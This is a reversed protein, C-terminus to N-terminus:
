EIGLHKLIDEIPADPTPKDEFTKPDMYYEGYDKHYAENIRKWSNKYQDKFKRLNRTLQDGSQKQKLSAFASTLLELERESVQGLAGGTKSSDRMEQLRGFGAEAEITALTGALDGAPTGGIWSTLQAGLGTTTLGEAQELATDVTNNLNQFKAKESGLATQRQRETTILEGQKEGIAQQVQKQRELEPVYGMKAAGTGTEGAFQFAQRMSPDAYAPMLPSGTEPNEVMKPRGNEMVFYGETSGTPRAPQGRSWNQELMAEAARQGQPYPSGAGTVAAGAPDPERWPVDGRSQALMNRVVENGGSQYDQGLQRMAEDSKGAQKNLMAAQILKTAGELPSYPVAVQYRGSRGVQQKHPQLTQGMMAEQIKKRRVIEEYQSAIEPPLDNFFSPM